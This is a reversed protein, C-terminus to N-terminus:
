FPMDDTAIPELPITRFLITTEALLELSKAHSASWNSNPKAPFTVIEKIGGQITECFCKVCPPGGWIQGDEVDQSAVYLTAGKTRIGHSAAALLANVEAHVTLELKIERYHLREGSDILQRPLGNFGMSLVERDPGVLVAGVRKNPDKSMSAHCIALKLFHRDWRESM